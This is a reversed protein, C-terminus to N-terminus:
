KVRIKHEPPRSPALTSAGFSYGGKLLRKFKRAFSERDGEQPVEVALKAPAISGPTKEAFEILKKSSPLSRREGERHDMGAEAVRISRKVPQLRGVPEPIVFHEPERSGHEIRKSGIWSIGVEDM